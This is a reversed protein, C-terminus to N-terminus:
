GYLPKKKRSWQHKNVGLGGAFSPLTDELTYEACFYAIKQM